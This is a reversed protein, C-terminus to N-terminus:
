VAVCGRDIRILLYDPWTVDYSLTCSIALTFVQIYRCGCGHLTWQRQASIIVNLYVYLHLYLLMDSVPLEFTYLSVNVLHSVSFSHVKTSLRDGFLPCCFTCHNTIYAMHYNVHHLMQSPSSSYLYINIHSSFGGQQETCWITCHNTIYATHYNACHLM